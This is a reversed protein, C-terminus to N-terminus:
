FYYNLDVFRKDIKTTLKSSFSLPDHPTDHLRAEFHLHPGTSHGTSGVYGITEFANVKQGVQIDNHFKNMHGYYTHVGSNHKIILMNGYGTDSSRHSVVGDAAAWIPTNIPAALDVGKHPMVKKSIPHLREPNFPSSIRSYNVPTLSIASAIIDKNTSVYVPFGSKPKHLFAYAIKTGTVKLSIIEQNKLAATIMGTTNPFLSSHARLVRTKLPDLSTDNSSISVIKINGDIIIPHTQYHGQAKNLVYQKGHTQITASLLQHSKDCTLLDIQDDPNLTSLINLRNVDANIQHISTSSVKHQKLIRNFTDGKDVTVHHTAAYNLTVCIVAFWKTV